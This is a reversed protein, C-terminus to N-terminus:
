SKFTKKELEYYNVHISVDIVHRLKILRDVLENLNASRTYTQSDHPVEPNYRQTDVGTSMITQTYDGVRQGNWCSRDTREFEDEECMSSLFRFLNFGDIITYYLNM